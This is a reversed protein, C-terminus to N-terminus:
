LFFLLNGRKERKRKNRGLIGALFERWNRYQGEFCNRLKCRSPEGGCGCRTLVCIGCINGVTFNRCNKDVDGYLLYAFLGNFIISLKFPLKIVEDSFLLIITM